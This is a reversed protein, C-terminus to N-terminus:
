GDNEGQWTKLIWGSFSFATYWSKLFSAMKEDDRTVINFLHIPSSVFAAARWLRFQLAQNYLKRYTSVLCWLELNSIKQSFRRKANQRWSGLHRIEGAQIKPTWYHTSQFAWTRSGMPRWHVCYSLQKTKSFKNKKANQRCVSLCVSPCCRDM